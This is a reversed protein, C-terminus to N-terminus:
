RDSKHLKPVGGYMRAINSYLSESVSSMGKEDWSGIVMGIGSVDLIVRM